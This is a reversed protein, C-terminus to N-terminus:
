VYYHILAAAQHGAAEPLTGLMKRQKPALFALLYPVCHLERATAKAIAALNDRLTAAPPPYTVQVMASYPMAEEIGLGFQTSDPM